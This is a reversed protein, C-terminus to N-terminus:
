NHFSCIKNLANKLLIRIDPNQYKMLKSLGLIFMNPPAIKNSLHKFMYGISFTDTLFSQSSGPINRLEYALHRHFKEFREHEKTGPQISYVLCRLAINAKGFYIIKPLNDHIIINDAKIDNHLISKSHLWIFGELIEGCIWQFINSNLSAIASALNLSAIWSGSQLQGYFQM